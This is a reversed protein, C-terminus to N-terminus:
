FLHYKGKPPPPPTQRYYSILKYFCFAIGVGILGRTVLKKTLEKEDAEFGLGEIINSVHNLIPHSAATDVADGVSENM